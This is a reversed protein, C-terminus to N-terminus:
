WKLLEGARLSGENDTFQRNVIHCMKVVTDENTKVYEDAEECDTHGSAASTASTASASTASTAMRAM